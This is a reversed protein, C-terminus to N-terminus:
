HYISIAMLISCLYNQTGIFSPLNIILINSSFNITFIISVNTEPLMITKFQNMAANLDWLLFSFKPWPFLSCPYQKMLLFLSKVPVCVVLTVPSISTTEFAYLNYM